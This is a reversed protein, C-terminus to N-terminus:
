VHRTLVQVGTERDATGSEVRNHSDDAHLVHPRKKRSSSDFAAKSRAERGRIFIGRSREWSPM